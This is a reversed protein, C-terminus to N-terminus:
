GYILHRGCYIAALAETGPDPNDRVQDELSLTLRGVLRRLNANEERLAANEQMRQEIIDIVAAGHSEDDATM